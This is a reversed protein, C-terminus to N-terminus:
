QTRMSQSTSLALVEFCIVTSLPTWNKTPSSRKESDKTALLTWLYSEFSYFIIKNIEPTPEAKLKEWNEHFM